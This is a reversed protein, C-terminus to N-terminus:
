RCDAFARIHGTIDKATYALLDDVELNWLLPSLIGGQRSHPSYAEKDPGAAKLTM